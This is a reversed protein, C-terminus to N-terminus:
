ALMEGEGEGKLTERIPRLTDYPDSQYRWHQLPSADHLNYVFWALQHRHIFPILAVGQIPETCVVDLRQLEEQAHQFREKAHIAERKAHELHLITDRDQRGPRASLREVILRQKNAELRYERLSRLVSAIYPIAALAEGHTWLHIKNRKGRIRGRHRNM